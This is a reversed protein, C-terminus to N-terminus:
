KGCMRSKDKVYEVIKMFREVRNRALEVTKQFTTSYEQCARSYDQCIRSDFFSFFSSEVITRAPEVTNMAPKVVINKVPEVTNM